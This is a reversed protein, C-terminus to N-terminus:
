KSFALTCFPKSTKLGALGVWIPIIVSVSDYKLTREIHHQNQVLQYINYQVFIILLNHNRILFDIM